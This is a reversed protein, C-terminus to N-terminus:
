GIRGNEHHPNCPLARESSRVPRATVGSDRNFALFAGRPLKAAADVGPWYPRISDLQAPEVTNFAVFETAQGRILKGSGSTFTTSTMPKSHLGSLQTALLTTGFATGPAVSRLRNSVGRATAAPQVCQATGAASGGGYRAPPRATPHCPTAGGSQLGSAPEVGTRASSTGGGNAKAGPRGNERWCSRSRSRTWLCIPWWNRSGAM